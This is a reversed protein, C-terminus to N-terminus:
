MLAKPGTESTSGSAEAWKSRQKSRISEIQESTVSRAEVAPNYRGKTLRAIEDDTLLTNEEGDARQLVTVVCAGGLGANQQLAAQGAKM